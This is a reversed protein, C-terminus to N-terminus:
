KQRKIVSAYQKMTSNPNEKRKKKKETQKFLIKKYKKATEDRLSEPTKEHHKPRTCDRFSTICVCVLFFISSVNFLVWILACFRVLM